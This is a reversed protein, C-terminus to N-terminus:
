AQQACCAATPPPPPKSTGWAPRVHVAQGSNTMGALCLPTAGYLLSDQALADWDLLHRVAAEAFVEIVDQACCAVCTLLVSAQMSVLMPLAENAATKHRLVTWRPRAAADAFM